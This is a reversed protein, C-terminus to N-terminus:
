LRQVVTVISSPQCIHRLSGAQPNQMASQNALLISVGSKEWDALYALALDHIANDHM